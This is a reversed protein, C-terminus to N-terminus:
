LLGNTQILDEFFIKLLNCKVVFSCSRVFSKVNGSGGTGVSNTISKLTDYWEDYSAVHFRITKTLIM